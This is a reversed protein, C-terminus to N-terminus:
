SLEWGAVAQLCKSRTYSLVGQTSKIVAGEIKHKPYTEGKVTVRTLTWGQDAADSVVKYVGWAVTRAPGHTVSDPWGERHVITQVSWGRRSKTLHAEIRTDM